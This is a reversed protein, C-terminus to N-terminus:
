RRRNRRFWGGWGGPLTPITVPGPAPAPAPTPTTTPAPGYLRVTDKFKPLPANQVNRVSGPALAIEVTGSSSVNGGLFVKVTHGDVWSLNTAHLNGAGTGSIAVDNLTMTAINVDNSFRITVQHPFTQSNVWAGAALAGGNPSLSDATVRFFGGV